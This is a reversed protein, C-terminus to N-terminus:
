AVREGGMEEFPARIQPGNLHHEPVRIERRRLDVGVHELFPHTVDVIPEV